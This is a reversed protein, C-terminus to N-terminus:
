NSLVIPISPSVSLVLVMPISGGCGMRVIQVTELVLGSLARTRTVFLVWQGDPSIEAHEIGKGAIKVIEKKIGINVDYRKLEGLSAGGFPDFPGSFFKWRMLEPIRIKGEPVEAVSV